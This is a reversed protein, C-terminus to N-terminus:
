KNELILKLHTDGITIMDGDSIRTAAEVAFDNLILGNRSGLDELWWQSGRRTILAHEASVYAEDIVVSNSPLRGISTVGRLAFRKQSGDMLLLAGGIQQASQAQRITFNLDRRMTWVIYGFFALLVGASLLRLVFLTIALTM